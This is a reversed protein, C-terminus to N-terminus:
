SRFSSSASCRSHNGAVWRCSRSVERLHKVLFKELSDSKKPAKRRTRTIQRTPFWRPLTHFVNKHHLEKAEVTESAATANTPIRQKHLKHKNQTTNWPRRFYARPCNPQQGPRNTAQRRWREFGIGVAVNRCPSLERLCLDSILSLSALSTLIQLHSTKLTNSTYNNRIYQFTNFHLHEFHYLTYQIVWSIPQTLIDCIHHLSLPPASRQM